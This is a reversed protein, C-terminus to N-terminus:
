KTLAKKQLALLLLCGKGFKKEGKCLTCPITYWPRYILSLLEHWFEVNFTFTLPTISHEFVDVDLIVTGVISKWKREHISGGNFDSSTRNHISKVYFCANRVNNSAYIFIYIYFAEHTIAWSCNLKLYDFIGHRFVIEGNEEKTFKSSSIYSVSVFPIRSVTKTKNYNTFGYRAFVSRILQSSLNRTMFAPMGEATLDM